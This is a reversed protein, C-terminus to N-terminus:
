VAIEWETGRPSRKSGQDFCKQKFFISPCVLLDLEPPGEDSASSKVDVVFRLEQFFMLPFNVYMDIKQNKM